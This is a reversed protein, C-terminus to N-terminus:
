ASTIAIQQTFDYEITPIVVQVFKLFVLLYSHVELERGDEEMMTMIKKMVEAHRCPHVSMRPPPPLHPHTELTVTKNLHDQSVDEYTEDDNLPKQNENYGFLWLRPTRYLNDYTIQLDYTRTSLIGIEDANDKSKPVPVPNAPLAAPDDGEDLDYDDIDLAPGSDTDSDDDEAGMGGVLPMDPKDVKVTKEKVDDMKMESMKEVNKDLTVGHHTDVWGEDEDDNGELQILKENEPIVRMQSCRRYCPVNKTVLFQKDPNLYSKQKSAEGSAWSWTPCHHVLFDGALMFEDPTIKGSEKFETKQLIPTISDRFERAHSKVKNVINQIGSAM